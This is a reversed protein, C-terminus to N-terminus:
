LSLVAELRKPDHVIFCRGHPQWAIILDLGDKEVDELMYHLKVPFKHEVSCSKKKEDDKQIVNNQNLDIENVKAFDRYLFPIEDTMTKTTSASSTTPSLLKERIKVAESYFSYM